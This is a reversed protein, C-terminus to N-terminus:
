RRYEYEFREIMGWIEKAEIVIPNVLPSDTSSNEDRWYGIAFLLAGLLLFHLLPEKKWQDWASAANDM